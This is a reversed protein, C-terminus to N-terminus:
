EAIPEDTTQHNTRLIGFSLAGFRVGKLEERDRSFTEKEELITHVEIGEPLHQYWHAPFLWLVSGDDYTRFIQMGVRELYEPPAVRLAAIDARDTPVWEPDEIEDPRERPAFNFEIDGPDVDEGVLDNDALFRKLSGLFGPDLPPEKDTM